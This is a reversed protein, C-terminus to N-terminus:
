FQWVLGSNVRGFYNPLGPIRYPITLSLSQILAFNTHEFGGGARFLLHRSLPTDLGGGVFTAFSATSGPSKNAGWNQNLGGDGVLGEFYANERGFHHNFQGGGLIFFANQPASLNTGRYGSVDIKFRIFRWAPFGVGADWGSLPQRAGPVGNFTNSLFSYGGYVQYRADPNAEAYLASSRSCFAALAFLAVLTSLRLKM